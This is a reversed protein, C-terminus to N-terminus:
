AARFSEGIRLLAVDGSKRWKMRLLDAVGHAYLIKRMMDTVADCRCFEALNDTVNGDRQTYV